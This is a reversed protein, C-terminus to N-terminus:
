EYDDDLDVEFLNHEGNNSEIIAKSSLILVGHKLTDLVGYLLQTSNVIKPLVEEKFKTLEALAKELRKRKIAGMIADYVLALEATAVMVASTVLIGIGTSTLFTLTVSLATVLIKGVVGIVISGALLSLVYFTLDAVMLDKIPNTHMLSKIETEIEETPLEALRVVNEGVEAFDNVANTVENLCEQLPEKSIDKNIMLIKQGEFGESEEFAGNIITAMMNWAKRFNSMVEIIESYIMQIKEAKRKNGPYLLNEFM